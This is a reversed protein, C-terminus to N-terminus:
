VRYSGTLTFQGSALQDEFGADTRWLDWFYAAPPWLTQVATLAIALVGNVADTISIGNGSTAQMLVQGGVSSRVTFAFNWNTVNTPTSATATFNIAQGRPCYLNTTVGMLMGM